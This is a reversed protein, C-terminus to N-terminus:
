FAAELAETVRQQMDPMLHSYTDLTQTITSHGLAEQVQKPHVNARLLATAFTHRCTHFTFDEEIGARKLLRQWDRHYLNVGSVPNGAKNTFVLGGGSTGEELQRKRHERLAESAARTLRVTRRSAKRKPPNFSGDAALSRQVTLKGAELNVDSWRLALLESRRLGTHIACVFLAALREGTAATLLAKVQEQDFPTVEPRHNQPAKVADCVNRPILGDLVAARLAKHLTTHIYNVSRPSLSEKIKEQYMKRIANPALRALKGSGLAPSLHNNVIGRYRIYTSTRVTGEVSALWDTLYTGVTLAGADFTLGKDANAMAETLAKRCEEYSKGYLTKRKPGTETQVTYRARWLERGPMKSIRDGRKAM